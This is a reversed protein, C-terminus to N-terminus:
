SCSGARFVEGGYLELVSRIGQPTLAVCASKQLTNRRHRDSNEFYFVHLDFEAGAVAVAERRSRVSQGEFRDDAACKRYSSPFAAAGLASDRAQSILDKM